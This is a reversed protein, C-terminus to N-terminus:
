SLKSKEVAEKIIERQGPLAADILIVESDDWILVPHFVGSAGNMNGRIELMELGKAIEM